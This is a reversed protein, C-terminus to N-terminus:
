STQRYHNHQLTWKFQALYKLIMLAYDEM